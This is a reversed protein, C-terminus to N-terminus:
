AFTEVLSAVIDKSMKKDVGYRSLIPKISNRMDKQADSQEFIAKAHLWEDLTDFIELTLKTAEGTQEKLLDYVKLQNEDSLGHSSYRNKHRNIIEEMDSFLDIVAQKRDIKADILKRELLESLELALEPNEEENAKIIAKAKDLPNHKGEKILEAQFQKYDTIDIPKELLYEIGNARLHEDLIMQLKKSDERTIKEKADRVMMKIENFLKFDYDYKSAFPDPLVINMSKNFDSVLEKFKDKIDVPDLYSIAQLIFADRQKERNKKVSKFYNVLKTHRNELTTKESEIDVM